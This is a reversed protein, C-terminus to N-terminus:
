AFNGQTALNGHGVKKESKKKGASRCFLLLSQPNRYHKEGRPPRAHQGRGVSFMRWVDGCPAHLQRVWGGVLTTVLCMEWQPPQQGSM